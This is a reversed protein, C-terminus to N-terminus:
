EDQTSVVDTVTHKGAFGNVSSEKVDRLEENKNDQHTHSQFDLDSDAFVCLRKTTILLSAANKDDAGGARLITDTALRAEASVSARHTLESSLRSGSMSKVGTM